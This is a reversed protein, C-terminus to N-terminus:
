IYLSSKIITELFNYIEDITHSRMQSCSKADNDCIFCKRPIKRSLYKLKNNKFDLVDIDYLRSLQNKDEIEIMKIKVFSSNSNVVVILEPGTKLNLLEKFYIKQLNHNKLFIDIEDKGTKFIEKIIYNNKINGPINLKFSIICNNPYLNFLKMIFSVRQEKNILIDKLEVVPGVQLSYKKNCM